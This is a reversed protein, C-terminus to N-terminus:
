RSAASQTPTQPATDQLNPKADFQTKGSAWDLGAVVVKQFTSNAWVDERHGMSTYFVRGKGQMRAWTAPFPKRKYMPEPNKMSNTDQVLIVHMDPALNKLNYWEEHMTFDKLGELGPFSSSVFKMTADQQRGHGAFEGGIMAIYPDIPDQVKADRLLEPNNRNKSHFTDSACHFGIIGVKGDEISKLFLAKGEESMPKETHILKDNVEKGDPGKKRTYKDSPKTLDETTYLAIIGYTDYTKPDNFVDADKTCTVEYGHKAAIETLMQEAVALKEPNTESRKVVDHQFGTSKTLFLIKKKEQASASQSMFSSLFLSGVVFAIVGFKKSM